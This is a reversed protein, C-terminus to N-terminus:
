PTLDLVLEAQGVLTVDALIAEGTVWLRHLDIRLRSFSLRGRDQIPLTTDAQFGDVVRKFARVQARLREIGDVGGWLKPDELWAVADTLFNSMPREFPHASGPPPASDGSLWIVNRTEGVDCRQLVALDTRAAVPQLRFSGLCASAKILNADPLLNSDTPLLLRAPLRFGKGGGEQPPLDGAEVWDDGFRLRPLGEVSGILTYADGKATASKIRVQPHDIGLSIVSGFAAPRSLLAGVLERDPFLATLEAVRQDFAVRAAARLKAQIRSSVDVDVAKRFDPKRGIGFGSAFVEGINRGTDVADNSVISCRYDQNDNGVPGRRYSLVGAPSFAPSYTASVTFTTPACGDPHVVLQPLPERQTDVVVGVPVSITLQGSSTGRLKLRSARVTPTVTVTVGHEKVQQARLPDAKLAASLAAILSREVAKISLTATLDVRSVVASADDAMQAALPPTLVGCVLAAGPLPIGSRM